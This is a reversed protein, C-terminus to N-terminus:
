RGFIAARAATISAGRGEMLPRGGRRLSRRALADLVALGRLSRPLRVAERNASALDLLMTRETGDPIHVAADVLAWRRAAVDVTDANSAGAMQGLALFPAARGRAFASAGAEDLEEALMFEWGDVLAILAHECGQWHVGIGDLVADGSPRAERSNGLQERLWALRMQGLMPENTAAVIRAIRSDLELFITLAQRLISPTHLLALQAEVPLSESSNDVM